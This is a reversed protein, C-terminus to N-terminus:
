KITHPQNPNAPKNALKKARYVKAREAKLSNAADKLQQDTPRQEKQKRFNEVKAAYEPTMPGKPGKEAAFATTSLSLLVTMMFFPLVNSLRLVNM